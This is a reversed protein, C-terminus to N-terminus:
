FPTGDGGLRAERLRAAPSRYVFSVFQGSAAEPGAMDGGATFAIGGATEVGHARFWAKVTELLAGDAFVGSRYSEIYVKDVHVQSNIESWTRELYAPDKMREVDSVAIYVAVKFAPHAPAAHPKANSIPSSQAVLFLPYALAICFVSFIRRSM